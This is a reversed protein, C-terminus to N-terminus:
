GLTEYCLVIESLKILKKIISEIIKRFSGKPDLNSGFNILIMGFRSNSTSHPVLKDGLYERLMVCIKILIRIISEIIIM